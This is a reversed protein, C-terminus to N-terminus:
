FGIFQNCFYDALPPNNKHKIKNEFFDVNQIKNTNVM